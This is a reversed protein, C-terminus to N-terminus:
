SIVADGQAYERGLRFVISYLGLNQDVFVRCDPRYIVAAHRFDLQRIQAFRDVLNSKNDLFIISRACISFSKTVAVADM